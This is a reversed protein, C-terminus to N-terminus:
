DLDEDLREGDLSDEDIGFEAQEIARNALELAEEALDEAARYSSGGWEERAKRRYADALTYEYTAQSPAGVAEAEAMLQEVQVLVVGSKIATCGALSLLAAFAFLRIM